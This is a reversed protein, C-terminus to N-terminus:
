WVRTWDCRDGSLGVSELNRRWNRIGVSRHQAVQSTRRVDTSIVECRRQNWAISSTVTPASYSWSGHRWLSWTIGHCTRWSRSCAITLTWIAQLQCLSTFWNIQCVKTLNKHFCMLTPPQLDSLVHWQKIKNSLKAATEYIVWSWRTNTPNWLGTFM